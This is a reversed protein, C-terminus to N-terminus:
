WVRHLVGHKDAVLVFPKVSKITQKSEKVTSLKVNQVYKKPKKM